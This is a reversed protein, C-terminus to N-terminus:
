RQRMEITRKLARFHRTRADSREVNLGEGQTRQRLRIGDSIMGVLEGDTMISAVSPGLVMDGDDGMGERVFAVNEGDESSFEPPVLALAADDDDSITIVGDGSDADASPLSASPSPNDPVTRDASGPIYELITPTQAAKTNRAIEVQSAVPTSRPAHTKYFRDPTVKNRKTETDSVATM